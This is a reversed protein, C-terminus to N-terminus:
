WRFSFHAISRSFVRIIILLDFSTLVQKDKELKSRWVFASAAFNFKNSSSIQTHSDIWDLEAFGVLGLGISLAWM